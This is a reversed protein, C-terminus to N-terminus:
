GQGAEAILRDLLGETPMSITFSTASGNHFEFDVTSGHTLLGQSLDSALIERDGSTQFALGNSFNKVRVYMGETGEFDLWLRFCNSDLLLVKLSYVTCEGGLVGTQVQYDVETVKAGPVASGGARAIWFTPIEEGSQPTQVPEPTRTPEPTPAPTVEPTVTPAPADSSTPASLSASGEEPENTGAPAFKTTLLAGLVLVLLCASALIYFSSKKSKRGPTASAGCLMCGDGPSCFGCKPCPKMKSEPLQEMLKEVTPYRQDVNVAICKEIVPRLPGDALRKAPHEGCLLANMLIGVGFIDARGDSRGFGYQEPAAYGVTGLLRTDRDKGGGQMSVADLDILAVRGDWTMLINDTKVDRHVMDRQHLVALARCVRRTIEGTQRTNLCRGQLLETLSVGDVLEEEVLCGGEDTEMYRYVQPLEGCQVGLLKEYAPVPRDYLRWVAQRGNPDCILCICRDDARKFVKQVTCGHLSVYKELNLM